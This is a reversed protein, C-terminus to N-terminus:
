IPTSVLWDGTRSKSRENSHRIIHCNACRIECKEIEELVTQTNNISQAMVTVDGSKTGKVHDFQLVRADSCGCDVCPHTELYEAVVRRLAGRRTRQQELRKQKNRQYHGKAYILHCSNCTSNRYTHEKNSWAFRNEELEQRCKICTKM